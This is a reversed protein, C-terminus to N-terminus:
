VTFGGIMSKLDAALLALEEANSSVQSSSGPIETIVDTVKSIQSAAQFAVAQAQAPAPM